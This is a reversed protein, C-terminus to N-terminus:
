AAGRLARTRPGPHMTLPAPSSVTLPVRRAASAGPQVQAGDLSLAMAFQGCARFKTCGTCDVAIKEPFWVHPVISFGLRVFPGAGHTFACLTSFGLRRAETGLAAILQSGLGRQRWTAHVVLSRVEAVAASLPALEACAVVRGAEDDAVLFRHAYRAVDDLTRPLLHGEALNGEILRLIGAADAPAAPRLPTTPTPTANV